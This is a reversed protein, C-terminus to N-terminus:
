TGYTGWDAAAQLNQLTGLQMTLQSFKGGAAPRVRRASTLVLGGTAWAISMPFRPTTECVCVCRLSCSIEFLHFAWRDCRHLAPCLTQEPASKRDGTQFITLGLGSPCEEMSKRTTGFIELAQAYLGPVQVHLM